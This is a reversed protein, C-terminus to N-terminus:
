PLPKPGEEFYNRHYNRGEKVKGEKVGLSNVRSWLRHCIGNDEKLEIEIVGVFFFISKGVISM